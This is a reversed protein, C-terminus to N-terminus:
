KSQITTAACKKMSERGIWSVSYRDAAPPLTIFSLGHVLKKARRGHELKLFEM